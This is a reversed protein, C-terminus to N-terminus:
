KQICLESWQKGLMVPKPIKALSKTSYLVCTSKDTMTAANAVHLVAYAKCKSNDNCAINCKVDNGFLSVDIVALPKSGPHLGGVYGQVCNFDKASAAFGSISLAVLGLVVTKITM